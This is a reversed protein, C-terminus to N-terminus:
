ITRACTDNQGSQKGGKSDVFADYHALAKKADVLADETENKLTAGANLHISGKSKSSAKLWESTIRKRRIFVAGASLPPVVYNHRFFKGLM